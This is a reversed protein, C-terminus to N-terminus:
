VGDGQIVDAVAAQFEVESVQLLAEFRTKGGHAGHITRSTLDIHRKPGALYVGKLEVQAGDGETVIGTEIRALKAGEGLIFQRYSAGKTLRVSVENLM